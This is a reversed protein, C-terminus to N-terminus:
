VEALRCETNRIGKELALQVLEEVPDYATSISEVSQALEEGKLEYDPDLVMKPTFSVYEKIEEKAVSEVDAEDVEPTRSLLERERSAIQQRLFAIEEEPTSFKNPVGENM